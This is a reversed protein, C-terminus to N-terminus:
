SWLLLTERQSVAIRQTHGRRVRLAEYLRLTDSDLSEVHTEFWGMADDIQVTNRFPAHEALQFLIFASVYADAPLRRIPVAPWLGESKQLNALYSMGRAIAEGDGRGCLLARLCLATTLPDAWGGDGEQVSVIKQVLRGSLPVHWQSLEDLRITALAAAAAPLNLQSTLRPSYEPRPALLENCLRAYFKAEWLKQIQRVTVM